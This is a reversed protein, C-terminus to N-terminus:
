SKRKTTIFKVNKILDSISQKCAISLVILIAFPPIMLASRLSRTWFPNDFKGDDILFRLCTINFSILFYIVVLFLILAIM